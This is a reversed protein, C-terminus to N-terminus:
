LLLKKLDAYLVKKLPSRPIEQLSHIHYVREFPYVRLNYYNLLKHINENIPSATAFHIRYGLRADELATLVVDEKLHLALKEEELIKELRLLDVSEGGIKIFHEGRNVTKLLGGEFQPMDETTFWGDNKPNRFKFTNSVEEIYATLLSQSQIKLYGLESVALCVHSLPKLLPYNLDSWSGYQATAVQSACETLGYSPLLRWGLKLAQFYVKESMAGGGVIIARLSPPAILGLLVLDFVQTPVLSTLTIRNDELQKLFYEPSWKSLPFHCPIVPAKNLYGRAIIGMGGVHFEPLPNLWIDKDNSELHTNVAKASALIGTKSLAVWKLQSSSGSTAFCVHGKLDDLLSIASLLQNKAPEPTRPNILIENKTSLWDIM